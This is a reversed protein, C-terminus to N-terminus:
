APTLEGQIFEERNMGSAKMKNYLTKVNIGLARAARTKNGRYKTLVRRIHIEELEKLTM